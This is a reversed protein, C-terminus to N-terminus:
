PQGWIGTITDLNDEPDYAYSTFHDLADYNMSSYVTPIKEFSHNHFLTQVTEALGNAHYPKDSGLHGPEFGTAWSRIRGLIPYQSQKAAPETMLTETLPLASGM